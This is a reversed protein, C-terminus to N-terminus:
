YTYFHQSNCIFTPYHSCILYLTINITRIITHNSKLFYSHSITFLLHDNTFLSM